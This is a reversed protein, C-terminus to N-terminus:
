EKVRGMNRENVSSERDRERKSEGKGWINKENKVYDDRGIKGECERWM